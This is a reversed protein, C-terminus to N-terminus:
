NRERETDRLLERIQQDLDRNGQDQRLDELTRNLRDWNRQEQEQRLQRDLDRLKWRSPEALAPSAWLMPILMWLMLTATATKM